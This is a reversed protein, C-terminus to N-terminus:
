FMILLEDVVKPVANILGPGSSQHRPIEPNLDRYNYIKSFM